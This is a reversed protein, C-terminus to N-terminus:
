GLITQLQDKLKTASEDDIEQSASAFLGRLAAQRESESRPASALTNTEWTRNKDHQIIGIRNAAERMDTYKKSRRITGNRAHVLPQAANGALSFLEGTEENAYGIWKNKTDHLHVYGM